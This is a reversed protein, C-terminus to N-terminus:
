VGALMQMMRLTQGVSAEGEAQRSNYTLNYHVV